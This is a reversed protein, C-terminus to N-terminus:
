LAVHWIYNTFLGNNQDSVFQNHIPDTTSNIYDVNHIILMQPECTIWTRKEDRPVYFTTQRDMDRDHNISPTLTTHSTTDHVHLSHHGETWLIRMPAVIWVM